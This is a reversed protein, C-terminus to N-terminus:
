QLQLPGSYVLFQQNVPTDTCMTKHKYIISIFDDTLSTGLQPMMRIVRSADNIILINKYNISRSNDIISRSVNMTCADSVVDNVITM